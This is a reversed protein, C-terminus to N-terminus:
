CARAAPTSMDSRFAPYGPQWQLRAIRRHALRTNLDPEDAVITWGKDKLFNEVAARVSGPTQDPVLRFDISIVADTPIANTAVEGVQGSRIGRINLAPRM